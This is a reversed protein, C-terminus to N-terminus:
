KTTATTASTADRQRFEDLGTEKAALAHQIQKLLRDYRAATEQGGLEPQLKYTIWLDQKAAELIKARKAADQQALGYRYRALAMNLRAEHFTDAFKPNSMTMKSLKGWGWIVNKGDRGPAGGLIARAYGQPDVAGQAQYTQAAQLQASLLMPKQKLVNLIIKTAQDYDGARRYCDALRLRVGLLSDPDDKFKPDQEAIELMRKYAETAREYYAKAKASIKEPGEDLGGGLSFYTQGVWNLSAYSNGTQRKTVRDLFIEFAKSVEELQSTQGSRRLDQLHQELERGLSIYIATLNEAAKADGAGQVLKELADMAQEAKKLQQPHVAIYARLALKYSEVAFAQRAAAPHNSKVLTLPGLTAHELWAIAKDPQGTDVCIQAMAFVAAAMTADVQGAKEMRAIGQGLVEQAQKELADLEAQPPREGEPLQSRRLYASWLAQGARLEAQGRRPSNESVKKLYELVKDSQYQNAAFGLLQLAAEDAEEEGPWRRFIEEGLQEIHRAEFQKDVDNSEAFMRLYAALAIRAGQRGPLTDPYRRALFEGLVAAEYLNGADWELFCLYYRASNLDERSVKEDSVALAANLAQRALAASSEKQRRLAQIAAPDAGTKAKLGAEAEQMRELAQKAQDLAEAFTTTAASEDKAVNGGGLAVLLMKAPRQYDGPHSAVPGV